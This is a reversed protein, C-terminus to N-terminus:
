YVYIIKGFLDNKHVLGIIRSDTSNERNDGLVFYYDEPIVQCSTEKIKCVDGFNFSNTIGNEFPEPVVVGNVYLKDDKYEIIEGPLGVIRKLFSDDRYYSTREKSVNVFVVDFREYSVNFRNVLILENDHFNPEMSAGNIRAIFLFFCTVILYCLYFPFVVALVDLIEILFGGKESLSIIEIIVLFLVAIFILALTLNKPSTIFNIPAFFMIVLLFISILIMFKLRKIKKIKKTNEM